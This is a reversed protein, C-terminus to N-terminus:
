NVRVATKCDIFVSVDNTHTKEQLADVPTGNVNDRAFCSICIPLAHATTVTDNNGVKNGNSSQYQCCDAHVVRQCSTCKHKHHILLWAHLMSSPPFNRENCMKSWVFFKPVRFLGHVHCLCSKVPIFYFWQQQYSLNGSVANPGSLVGAVFITRLLM